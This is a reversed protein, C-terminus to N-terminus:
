RDKKGEARMGIRVTDNINRMKAQCFVMSPKGHDAMSKFRVVEDLIQVSIKHMDTDDGKESLWTEVHRARALLREMTTDGPTVMRECASKGDQTLVAMQTLDRYVDVDFKGTCAVLLGSLVLAVLNKM